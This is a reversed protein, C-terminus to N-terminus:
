LEEKINYTANFIDIKCPYLENQVGVILVDEDTFNYKGELTDVEFYKVNKNDNLIAVINCRGLINVSKIGTDEKFLEIIDNYTFFEIEVPKKTAKRM